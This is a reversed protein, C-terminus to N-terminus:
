LRELTQTVHGTTGRCLHLTGLLKSRLMSCVFPMFNLTARSLPSILLTHFTTSDAQQRVRGTERRREEMGRITWCSPLMQNERRETPTAVREKRREEQTRMSTKLLPVM